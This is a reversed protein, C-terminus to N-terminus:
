NSYQKTSNEAPEHFCQKGAIQHPVKYKELISCKFGVHQMGDAEVWKGNDKVWLIHAGAGCAGSGGVAFKDDYILKVSVGAPNERCAETSSDSVDGQLRKLESKLFDKLGQSAGTLKEVDLEQQIVIYRDNGEEDKGFGVLKVADFTDGTTEVEKELARIQQQLDSVQKDKASLDSKHNQVQSYWTFGAAFVIVSVIVSVIVLSTKSKKQKPIQYQNNNDMSNEM